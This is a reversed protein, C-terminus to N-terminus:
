SLKIDTISQTLEVSSFRNGLEKLWVEIAHWQNSLSEQRVENMRKKVPSFDIIKLPVTRLPLLPSLEQLKDIFRRMDDRIGEKSPTTFTAYAYLDIGLTLLRSLIRFQNEFLQKHARTNYSFSEPSFGKFCCVRGYNKYGCILEHDAESLYRWLFDNSLNDDSWLYIAEDLKRRRLESMMWPVWEPVLSPSGGSLDIVKPPTPEELYLDLLEQASLWRGDAPKACILEEPVFCYWCSWDCAAVQFVEAQIIDIRPLNLAKCAPDIPLPDDPWGDSTHRRFHRIRGFGNCNSPLTLDKEQLSGGIKAILIKNEKLDVSSERLTVSKKM